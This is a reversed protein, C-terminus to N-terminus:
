VHSAPKSRSTFCPRRWLGERRTTGTRTPSPMPTASWAIAYDDPVNFNARVSIRDFQGIWISGLGLDAAALMMHTAVITADVEYSDQDTDPDHFSENVNACVILALPARYPNAGGELQRVNQESDVVLIRQPQGNATTPAVRGAELIIDLKEREVKRDTYSRTSFRTKALDLFDKM